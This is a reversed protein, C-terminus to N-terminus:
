ELRNALRELSVVLAEMGSQNKLSNALTRLESINTASLKPTISEVPPTAPNDTQTTPEWNPQVKIQISRLGAWQPIVRLKSLLDPVSYRLKTAWAASDSFLTLVGSVYCGVRCHPILYPELMQTFSDNLDEIAKAQTILKGLITEPQILLNHIPYSSSM